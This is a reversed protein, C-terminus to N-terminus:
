APPVTANQVTLPTSACGALERAAEIVVDPRDRHIYHGSGSVRVHRASPFDAAIDEQLRAASVRSAPTEGRLAMTSSLVITPLDGPKPSEHVQEGARGSDALERRTILAMYLFVVQRGYPSISGPEKPLGQNWHTSDVLVLGSVEQAFERAFYQMYLGGLSHGVLVYPPRIGRRRLEARLEAVVTQADRPGSAPPSGMYGARNYAFTRTCNTAVAGQIDKWVDLTDGLGSALVVTPSGHGEIRVHLSDASAAPGARGALLMCFTCSALTVLVARHSFRRKM